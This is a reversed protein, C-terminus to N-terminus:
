PPLVSHSCTGEISLSNLVVNPGCVVVFQGDLQIRRGLYHDSELGIIQFAPNSRSEELYGKFLM